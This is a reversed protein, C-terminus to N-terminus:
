SMRLGYLRSAARQTALWDAIRKGVSARSSRSRRTAWPRSTADLDSALAAPGDLFPDAGLAEPSPRGEPFFASAPSGDGEAILRTCINSCFYMSAMPSLLAVSWPFGGM